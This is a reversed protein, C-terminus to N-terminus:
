RCHGSCSTQLGGCTNYCTDGCSCSDGCTYISTFRLNEDEKQTQINKINLDFDNYNGMKNGGKRNTWSSFRHYTIKLLMNKALFGELM